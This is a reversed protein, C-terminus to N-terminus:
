LRSLTRKVRSLYAARDERSSSDMRYLALYRTRCRPNCLWRIGRLLTRRGPEGALKSFLWSAGCTTVVTISRINTLRPRIPIMGDPMAFTAHPVFVRDLWGKLMAPLGFWWTPYVFVLAEAWRLHALQGAIPAENVGEVEYDRHEAASMAPDFGDAYLDILRSEHGAAALAALAADRLAAAFSDSRPHCYVVLVRTM